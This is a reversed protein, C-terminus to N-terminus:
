YPVLSEGQSDVEEWRVDFFDKTKYRVRDQKIYAKIVLSQEKLTMGPFSPNEILLKEGDILFNFDKIEKHVNNINVRYSIKMQNIPDM